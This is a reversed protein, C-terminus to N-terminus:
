CWTLQFLVADEARRFLWTRLNSIEYQGPFREDCWRVMDRFTRRTETNLTARGLPGYLENLRQRDFVVAHM